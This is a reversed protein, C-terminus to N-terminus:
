MMMRKRSREVAARDARKRARGRGADRLGCEVWDWGLLDTLDACGRALIHGATRYRLM